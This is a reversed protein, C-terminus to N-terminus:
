KAKQRNKYEELTHAIVTRYASDIVHDHEACMVITASGGLSAKQEIDCDSTMAQPLTAHRWSFWRLARFSSSHAVKAINIANNAVVTAPDAKSATGQLADAIFPIPVSSALNPALFEDVRKRYALVTQQAIERALADALRPKREHLGSTAQLAAHYFTRFLDLDTDTENVEDVSLAPPSAKVLAVLVRRNCQRERENRPDKVAPYASGYGLRIWQFAKAKEVTLRGILDRCVADAREESIRQTYGPERREADPDNDAFGTIEVGIIVAPNRDYPNKSSEPSAALTRALADLKARETAPLEAITSTHRTFGAIVDPRDPPCRGASDGSGESVPPAAAPAAVPRNFSSALGAGVILSLPDIGESNGLSSRMRLVLQNPPMCGAEDTIRRAFGAAVGRPTSGCEVVLAYYGPGEPATCVGAAQLAGRELIDSGALVAVHALTGEGRRILIDGSRFPTAGCFGPRAALDFHKQLLSRLPPNCPYALSDFSQAASFLRGRVPDTFAQNLGMSALIQSWIDRTQSVQSNAILQEVLKVLGTEVGTGPQESNMITIETDAADADLSEGEARPSLNESSKNEQDGQADNNQVAASPKAAVGPANLTTERFGKAAVAVKRAAQVASEVDVFGIGIRDPNEEPVSERRASGLLLNHTEEIRLKRPCAQFMLAVTGTAFPAAMSTGSMRTVKSASEPNKRPASRAALVQVGPACLDPKLRGDGTPGVSSFPGIRHESDHNDFAGVAITRRGNCITGTTSKPDADEAVFRSQCPPCAVEREIWANYRGDIVDTGVITVSWKGAPAEKYLFVTAHNHLTNADQGRHYVNGIEVGGLMIKSREGVKASAKIAGDPSRLTVEFRDQWSYWIQLQNYDSPRENVTWAFQREETPRLHGSAHIRKNYYNGVSMCVARGAAASVVNDLGQEVLTTGDHQDAHCGMSLNVVWPREGAQKAIFDIAELLTVSDGLRGSQSEDWPSNHVLVLQAEPAMGAPREESGSGAAISAVHTGHCGIGTDADAPHYKLAAYPDSSALALNIAKRDHVVGYGFPAPSNSQKGGRQDWLAIIRTTGDANKFDPHAFDFGWDVIGIVVGRGTANEDKPRRIDTERVRESTAEAEVSEASDREWDPGMLSGGANIDLVEASASVNLLDGRTLRITVIDSFQSVIRVNAPLREHHGLRIIAAVEDDAKGDEFLEWVDPGVANEL